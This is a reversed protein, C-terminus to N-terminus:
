KIHILDILRNNVKSRTEQRLFTRHSAPMDVLNYPVKFIKAVKGMPDFVQLQIFGKKQKLVQDKTGSCSSNRSRSNVEPTKCSESVFRRRPRRLSIKGFFPSSSGNELDFMKAKFNLTRNETQVPSESAQNFTCSQARQTLVSLQCSFNDYIKTWPFREHLMSETFNSLLRRPKPKEFIRKRPMSFSYAHLFQEPHM